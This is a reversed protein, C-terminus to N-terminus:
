EMRKKKRFFVTTGFIGVGSVFLAAFWLLINSNDGTQPSNTLHAPFKVYVLTENYRFAEGAITTVTKGDIEDPIVIETVTDECGTIAVTEDELVKYTVTGGTADFTGTEGYALANSPLIGILLCITLFIAM